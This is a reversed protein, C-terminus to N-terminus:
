TTPNAAKLVLGFFENYNKIAIPMNAKITQIHVKVDEPIGAENMDWVDVGPNENMFKAVLAKDVSPLTDFMNHPAHGASDIEHYTIMNTRAGEHTLAPYIGRHTLARYMLGGCRESPTAKDKVGGTIILVPTTLSANASGLDQSWEVNMADRDYGDYYQDHAMAPCVIIVSSFYQNVFDTHKSILRGGMAGGLSHGLYAVPVSADFEYQDKIRPTFYEIQNKVIEALPTTNDPKYGSKTCGDEWIRPDHLYASDGLNRGHNHSGPYNLCVVLHGAQVLSKLFPIVALTRNDVGAQVYDMMYYWPSMINERFFESTFKFMAPDHITLGKGGHVYYIISTPNINRDRFAYAYHDVGIEDRSIMEEVALGDTHADIHATIEASFRESQQNFNQEAAETENLALKLTKYFFDYMMCSINKESEDITAVDPWWIRDSTDWDQFLEKAISYFRLSNESNIELEWDTFVELIQCWGSVKELMQTYRTRPVSGEPYQDRLEIIKEAPSSWALKWRQGM